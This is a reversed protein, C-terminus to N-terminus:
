GEPLLMHLLQCQIDFFPWLTHSEAAVRGVDELLVLHVVEVGLVDIGNQEHFTM